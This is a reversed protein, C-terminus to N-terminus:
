KNGQKSLDNVNLDGANVGAPPLNQSDRPDVYIEDTEQSDQAPGDIKPQHKRGKYDNIDDLNTPDQHEM